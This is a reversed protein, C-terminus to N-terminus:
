KPEAESELHPSGSKPNLWSEVVVFHDGGAIMELEILAFINDSFKVFYSRSANSKWIPKAEVPMEISAKEKFGAVPAEFNLKDNREVVGGGPVTLVLKWPYRRENPPRPELEENWCHLVIRYPTSTNPSIDIEVPAGDRPLRYNQEGHKVLPEIIGPRHLTFVMPADASTKPPFGTGFYLMAASTRRADNFPLQRFGSKTIEINLTGGRKGLISFSGGDDTNTEEKSSPQWPKNLVGYRVTAQSVPAGYQDVVKGYFNIPATFAEKFKALHEASAEHSNKARPPTVGPPFPSHPAQDVNRGGAPARSDKCVQWLVLCIAIFSLGSIGKYLSM